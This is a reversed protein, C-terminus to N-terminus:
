SVTYPASGGGGFGSSVIRASIYPASGGFGIGSHGSYTLLNLAEGLEMRFRRWACNLDPLEYIQAYRKLGRRGTRYDPMWSLDLGVWNGARQMATPDRRVAVDVVPTGFAYRPLITAAADAALLSAQELAPDFVLGIAQVAHFAEADVAHQRIGFTAISDSVQALFEPGTVEIPLNGGAAVYWRQVEQRLIGDVAGDPVEDANLPNHFLRGYDYRLLNIVTSGHGWGPEAKAITNDITLLGVPNSPFRRHLPSVRGDLDIAPAWGSPAYAFRELWDRLDEVQETVRLVVSETMGAFPVPDYRIGTSIVVGDDYLYKDPPFTTPSRPSFEGDYAALLFEGLTGSWHFPMSDTPPGVYQLLVEVLQGDTPLTTAGIPALLVEKAARVQFTGVATTYDADLVAVCPPTPPSGGAGRPVAYRGTAIYRPKIRVWDATTGGRPRWWVVVHPYRVEHTVNVGAATMSDIQGEFEAEADSLVVLKEDDIKAQNVWGDLAVTVHGPTGPQFYGGPTAFGGGTGHSATGLLPGLSAALPPGPELDRNPIYGGLVFEPGGLMVVGRPLLCTTEGKHFAKTKRESERTDRIAFSIASLSEDLSPELCDGDVITVWGLASSIFRRFRGRRGRVAGYKTLPDRLRGTTIGSDQDGAITPPDILSVRVAALSASGTLFDVVQAGYSDPEQLIQVDAPDAPDTTATWAVTVRDPEYVDLQLVCPKSPETAPTLKATTSASVSLSYMDRFGGDDVNGFVKFLAWGVADGAAAFDFAITEEELWYTSGDFGGIGAKYAAIGSSIQTVVLRIPILYDDLACPSPWAHPQITGYPTAPASMAGPTDRATVGFYFTTARGEGPCPQLPYINSLYAGAMIGRSNSDAGAAYLGVAGGQGEASWYKTAVAIYPTSLAGVRLYASIEYHKFGTPMGPPSALGPAQNGEFAAAVLGNYEHYPQGSGLPRWWQDSSDWLFNHLQGGEGTQPTPNFAVYVHEFGTGSTVSLLKFGPHTWIVADDWVVRWSYWIGEPWAAANSLDVAATLTSGGGSLGAAVQIWAPSTATIDTTVHLTATRGVRNQFEFTVDGATPDIIEGFRPSLLRMGTTVTTVVPPSLSGLLWDIEHEFLQRGLIQWFVTATSNDIGSVVINASLPVASLDVTGAPIVVMVELGSFRGLLTGVYTDSGDDFYGYEGADLKTSITQPPTGLFDTIDHTTVTTLNGWAFSGGLRATSVLDCQCAVTDTPTAGMGPERLTIWCPIGADILARIIPGNAVRDAYNGAYAVADYLKLTDFDLSASAYMTVTHGRRQMAYRMFAELAGDAPTATPGILAVSRKISAWDPAGYYGASWELIQGIDADVLNGAYALIRGYLFFGGGVTYLTLGDIDDSGADGSWYRAGDINVYSDAGDLHVHITVIETDHIRRDAPATLLTGCDIEWTGTGAALWGLRLGTGSPGPNLVDRSGTYANTVLAGMVLIDCPQTLPAAFTVDGGTGAEADFASKGNIQNRLMQFADTTKSAVDDGGTGDDPVTAFLASHSVGSLGASDAWYDHDPNLDAPDFPM